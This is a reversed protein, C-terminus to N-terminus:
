ATSRANAEDTEDRTPNRSSRDEQFLRDRFAAFREAIEVRRIKGSSTRPIGEVFEIQKPMASFPLLNRCYELISAETIAAEPRRVVLAAIEEDVWDNPFSAAGADAVGPIGALLEDLELLSVM